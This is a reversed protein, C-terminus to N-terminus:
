VRQRVYCIVCDKLHHFTVNFMLRIFIAVICMASFYVLCLYLLITVRDFQLGGASAVDIVFIFCLANPLYERLRHTVEGSGGIGPTDVLITSGQKLYIHKLVSM